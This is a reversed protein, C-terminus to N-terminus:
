PRVPVQWYGGSANGAWCDGFDAWPLEPTAPQGACTIAEDRRAVAGDASPPYDAAPPLVMHLRAWSPALGCTVSYPLLIGPQRFCPPMAAPAAPCGRVCPPSAGAMPADPLTMRAVIPPPPWRNGNMPLFRDHQDDFEVRMKGDDGYTAHPRWNNHDFTMLMTAWPSVNDGNKRVGVLLRKYAPDLHKAAELYYPSSISAMGRRVCRGALTYIAVDSFGVRVGRQDIAFVELRVREPVRLLIVPQQGQLTKDQGEEVWCGHDLDFLIIASAIVAREREAERAVVLRTRQLKALSELDLTSPPGYDLRVEGDIVREIAAYVEILPDAGQVEFPVAGLRVVPNYVGRPYDGITAKRVKAQWFHNDKDFSIEALGVLKDKDFAKVIATGVAPDLDSVYYPVGKEDKRPQAIEGIRILRLPDWNPPVPKPSRMPCHYIFVKVSPQETFPPALQFLVHAPGIALAGPDAVPAWENEPVETVWKGADERYKILISWWGPPDNPDRDDAGDERMKVELRGNGWKPPLVTFFTGSPTTVGSDLSKGLALWANDFEKAEVNDFRRVKYEWIGIWGPQGQWQVKKPVIPKGDERAPLSEARNVGAITVFLPRIEFIEQNKAVNANQWLVNGKQKNLDDPEFVCNWLLRNRKEPAAVEVECRDAPNFVEIFPQRDPNANPVVKGDNKIDIKAPWPQGSRGGPFFKKLLDAPASASPAPCIVRVALWAPHFELPSQRLVPPRGPPQAPRPGRELPGLVWAPDFDYHVVQAGIFVYKRDQGEGESRAIVVVVEQEGTPDPFSVATSGGQKLSQWALDAIFDGIAVKGSERKVRFFGIYVAMPDRSNGPPLLGKLTPGIDAAEPPPGDYTVTCEVKLSQGVALATLLTPLLSTM